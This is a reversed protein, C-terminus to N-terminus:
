SRGAGSAWSTTWQRSHSASRSGSRPWLASSRRTAGPWCPASRAPARSCRAPRPRTCRSAGGRRPRRAQGRPEHGRVPRRDDARDRGRAAGDRADGRADRTAAAGPQRPERARRRGPDRAGRRVGDLGDATIASRTAIWSTTTSCRSTTSSSWPSPGTSQRRRRARRSRGGLRAGARSAGGQRGGRRGRGLRFPPRRRARLDPELRTSPRACRRGSSSAHATSRRPSRRTMRRGRAGADPAARRGRARGRDGSRVAGEMTAPWGTDTWAGALYLGELRPARDGAAARATGPGQRFTARQERTVFFLEVARRARRRSSSSRARARVARAAGGGEAGIYERACSLSVALYQGRECGPAARATSSGSCRRTTRRGRVSPRDGAPRLRRAPQRDAVRRPLRARRTRSRCGDPLSRRRTTTRFPSRRGRGRGRGDGNGRSRSAAPGASSATSARGFACTSAPASSRRPARTATCSSCRCPRTASTARTPAELLGTQFVKAALALSAEAAPLNLTPLVILNWLADVAAPSQGHERLWTASRGATSRRTPSTSSRWCPSRARAIAIRDRRAPYPFRALSPALHLPAPLRARAAARAARRARAGPDLAAGAARDAADVGLARAARPVRHLLAPVRAPRQGDLHGDREFSFTAGGLRPRGELLTVEAGADACDLAATIGALGGGVVAVSSMRAVAALSRAAVWGKEWAPCRCAAACCWARAAARDARAAAPLDPWRRARLRRQAPRAAARLRLGREFWERARDAEFRILDISRPRRRRRSIAASAGLGRGAPLRPRERPGRPHRAPHQDAADRRRPRRRAGSAAERDRAEFVGLCLRGIAGAVRRCYPLLDDFTEYDRGRRGDRRRRDAREFAEVPM